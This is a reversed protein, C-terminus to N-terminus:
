HDPLGHNNDCNREHRQLLGNWHMDLKYIAGKNHLFQEIDRNDYGQLNLQVVRQCPLCHWGAIPQHRNYPLVAAPLQVPREYSNYCNHKRIPDATHRRIGHREQIDGEEHKRFLRLVSDHLRIPAHDRGDLQLGQGRGREIHLEDQRHESDAYYLHQLERGPQQISRVAGRGVPYVKDAGLRFPQRVIRHRHPERPGFGM